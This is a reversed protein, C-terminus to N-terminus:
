FLEEAITEFENWLKEERGYWSERDWIEFRRSTGAVVVDKQVRARKMLYDPIRIRGMGDCECHVTHAFFLREFERIRPKTFGRAEFSNTFEEFQRSDFAFICPDLGPALFVELRGTNKMLTERFTSPLILRNKSDVTHEFIGLFKGGGIQGGGNEVM